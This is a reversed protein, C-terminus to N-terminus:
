DQSNKNFILNLVSFIFAFIIMGIFINAIKEDISEGDPLFEMILICILLSLGVRKAPLTNNM